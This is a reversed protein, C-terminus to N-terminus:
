GGDYQALKDLQEQRRKEFDRERDRARADADAQPHPHLHPQKETHTHPQTHPQSTTTNTVLTLSPECLHLKGFEQFWEDFELPTQNKKKLDDAYRTYKGRMQKMAYREADRDISGCMMKFALQVAPDDTAADIKYQAYDILCRFLTGAQAVSLMELAPRATDFYVMVGPRAKLAM